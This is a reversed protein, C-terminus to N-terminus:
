RILELPVSIDLNAWARDATVLPEARSEALAICFRDGLSLDRISRLEAVRAVQRETVGHWKLGLDGIVSLADDSGSGRQVLKGAAEAVNILSAGANALQARAREHGPEALLLALIASTDFVRM